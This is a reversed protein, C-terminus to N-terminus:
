KVFTPLIAMQWNPSAHKNYRNDDWPISDTVRTWIMSSATQTERRALTRLSPMSGDTKWSTISLYYSLSPEKAKTLCVTLFTFESNLGATTRNFILLTDGAARPLTAPYICVSTFYAKKWKTGRRCVAQERSLQDITKVIPVCLRIRKNLVVPIYITYM